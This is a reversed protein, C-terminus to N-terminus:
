KKNILKNQIYMQIEVDFNNIGGTWINKLKEMSMNDVDEKTLNLRSM